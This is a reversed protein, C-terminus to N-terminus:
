KRRKKYLGKESKTADRTTVVKYINGVKKLIIFLVRGRTEGIIEWLTERRTLVKRLVVRGNIADNVKKDTVYHKAIHELSEKDWDICVEM